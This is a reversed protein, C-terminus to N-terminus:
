TVRIYSLRLDPEWAEGDKKMAGEGHMARGDKAITVRYRQALPSTDRSWTFGDEGSAVDYRRGVTREDFYLMSCTKDDSDTGFIAVGEPIEPDEMKSHM